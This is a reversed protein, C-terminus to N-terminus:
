SMAKSNMYFQESEHLKFSDFVKDYNFDKYHKMFFFQSSQPNKETELNNFKIDIENQEVNVDKKENSFDNNQTYIPAVYDKSVFDNEKKLLELLKVQEEYYRNWSAEDIEIM